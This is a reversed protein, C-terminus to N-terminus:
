GRLASCALWLSTSSASDRGALVELVPQNTPSIAGVLGGINREAQTGATPISDGHILWSNLLDTNVELYRLAVDVNGAANKPNGATTRLRLQAHGEIDFRHSRSRRTNTPVAARSTWIGGALIGAPASEYVYAGIENYTDGGTIDSDAIYNGSAHAM